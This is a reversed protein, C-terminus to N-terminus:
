SKSVTAKGYPVFDISLYEGTLLLWTPYLQFRIFNISDPCLSEYYLSLKVADGQFQLSGFQIM